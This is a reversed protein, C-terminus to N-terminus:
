SETVTSQELLFAFVKEETISRELEKIRNDKQLSAFVKGPKTNRNKAIKEVRDDIDDETAQLKQTEAIHDLITMPSNIYMYIDREPNDSDLFLLQAIVINAVDDNIPAGLFVIRDMLLRSFVDYTKEGRSSREIIYPPYLTASPPKYITM